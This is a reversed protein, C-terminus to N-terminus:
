FHHSFSSLGLVLDIKVQIENHTKLTGLFLTPPTMGFDTMLLQTTGWIRLEQGKLDAFLELTVEKAEGAVTLAIRTEIHYRGLSSDEKVHYSKMEAHIPQNKLATRMHADLTSDGSKWGSPPLSIQFSRLKGKLAETWPEAQRLAASRVEIQSTASSFKTLTSRGMLEITGRLAVLTTDTVAM